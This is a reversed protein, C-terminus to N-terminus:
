NDFDHPETVSSLFDQVAGLDVDDARLPGLSSSLPKDVFPLRADSIPCPDDIRCALLNIIPALILAALVCLFEFRVAQSARKLSTSGYDACQM